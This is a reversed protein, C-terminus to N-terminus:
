RWPRPKFYASDEPSVVAVAAEQGDGKKRKRKQKSQPPDCSTLDFSHIFPSPRRTALITTVSRVFRRVEEEKKKAAARRVEQYKMVRLATNDRFTGENAGAINLDTRRALEQRMGRPMQPVAGDRQLYSEHISKYIRRSQGEGCESEPPCEVKYSYAGSADPNRRKLVKGRIPSINTHLKVLVIEEEQIQAVWRHNAIFRLSHQRASIGVGLCESRTCGATCKDCSPFGRPRRTKGDGGSKSRPLPPADRKRRLRTNAKRDHPFLAAGAADYAGFQIGSRPASSPTESGEGAAGVTVVAPATAKTAPTALPDVTAAAGDQSNPAGKSATGPAKPATGARSRAM